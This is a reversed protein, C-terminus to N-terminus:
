IQSVCMRANEYQLRGGGREGVGGGGLVNGLSRTSTRVNAENNNDEMHSVAWDKSTSPTLEVPIEKDTDAM